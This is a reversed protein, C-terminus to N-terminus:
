ENSRPPLSGRSCVTVTLAAMRQRILSQPPWFDFCLYLVALPSDAEPDFFVCEGKFLHDDLISPLLVWDKTLSCNNDLEM